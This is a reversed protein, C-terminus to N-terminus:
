AFRRVSFVHSYIVSSANNSCSYTVVSDSIMQWNANIPYITTPSNTKHIKIKNKKNKIYTM